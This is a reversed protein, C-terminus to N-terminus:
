TRCAALYRNITRAEENSGKVRGANALWNEIIVSKGTSIEARKGNITIRAYIPAKLTKKSIRARNAWFLISINDKM